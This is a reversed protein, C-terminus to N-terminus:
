ENTLSKIMNMLVNNDGGEFGSISSFLDTMDFPKNQKDLTALLDKIEVDFYEKDEFYILLVLSDIYPKTEILSFTRLQNLFFIDIILPFLKETIKLMPKKEDQSQFVAYPNQQQDVPNQNLELLIFDRLNIRYSEDLMEALTQEFYAQESNSQLLDM